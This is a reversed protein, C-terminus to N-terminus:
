FAREVGIRVRMPAQFVVPQGYSPNPNIQTGDPAVGLFHQQDVFVTQQPNGLHQLDVIIQGPVRLSPLAYRVRVNLDWLAPTRGATGRPVLCLPRLFGQVPVTGFENLPTGSQATFSVGVTTRKTAIYSGALKVMHPIDNPLRGTANKAQEPVSASFNNAIVESNVDASFMGSYNGYLRSYVYSGLLKLRAGDRQVSFEAARYDRQPRPLQSLEGEGYNGSHFQYTSDAGFGIATNLTRWTARLALKWRSGVVQEYGAVFEEIHEGKLHRQLPEQGPTMPTLIPAPNLTRPDTAFSGFAQTGAVGPLAYFPFTLPLAQSYRGIAGFLKRRGDAGPQYVIGIRPQYQDTISMGVANTLGYFYQGDWRFGANVVWAPAVQWSDQFFVTRIRNYANGECDLRGAMWAGDGGEAYQYLIGIGSMHWSQQMRNSEYEVGAKMTHAAMLHTIALKLATRRTRTDGTSGAGGSWVNGAAFDHLIEEKRGVETEGEFTERRSHRSLAAEVTTRASLVSRASLALSLNGTAFRSRLPDANLLSTPYSNAHPPLVGSQHHVSPDGVVNLTADTGGNVRWNVKGAFSHTVVRDPYVGLNLLDVDKSAASPNYAVFFWAKKRVIPGGLGVGVDYERQNSAQVVSTGVPEASLASNTFYGFVDGRFTDSGSHTIVDIIGGTARGYEAEYGGQRVRVERVFNYPMRTTALGHYVDTANIGDIFFVNEVGTSGGVNLADRRYSANAQPLLAAVATYDRSIPLAEFQAATVNTSIATSTLALLPTEASIVVPALSSASRSLAVHGITSTEGLAVRLSDFRVMRYGPAGIHLAYYGVPLGTLIFYGNANSHASRPAQLAASVARVEAGGVARGDPDVVRGQLGGSVEQAMVAASLLLLMCACRSIFRLGHLLM